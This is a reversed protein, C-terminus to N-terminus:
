GRGREFHGPGGHVLDSAPHADQHPQYIGGGCAADGRRRGALFPGRGGRGPDDLPGLQLAEVSRAQALRHARPSPRDSHREGAHKAGPFRRRATRRAAFSSRPERPTPGRSGLIIADAAVMGEMCHDFFDDKQSCRSNKKEFCQYCAQCGRISAGGLQLFETEWGAATLPSLAQKLLIETNGGKRPSGNIAVAKM